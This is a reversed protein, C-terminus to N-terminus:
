LLKALRWLVFDSLLQHLWFAFIGLSFALSFVVKKGSLLWSLFAALVVAGIRSAAFGFALGLKYGTSGSAKGTYVAIVCSICYLVCFVIGALPSNFVLM